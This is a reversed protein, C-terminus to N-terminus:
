RIIQGLRATQPRLGEDANRWMTAAVTASRLARAPNRGALLLAHLAYAQILFGLRGTNYRPDDTILSTAQRATGLASELSAIAHATDSMVLWVEAEAVVADATVQGPLAGRRARAVSTLQIRASDPKREALQREAVLTRGANALREVWASDPPVISRVIVNLQMYDRQQSLDSVASPLRGSIDDLRRWVDKPRCGAYVVGELGVIDALVDRPLQADESALSPASQRLLRETLACRGTMAAIPALLGAIQPTRPPTNALLSDASTAVRSLGAGSGSASLKFWMSLRSVALRLREAPDTALREAAQMTDLATPDGRLEMSIALAEKTGASRPFTNAWRTVVTDFITRLRMVVAPPSTNSVRQSTVDGRPWPVFVISDGAVAGIGWFTRSPDGLFSGPSWANGDIFLLRRLRGYGDQQFGRYTSPILQFSRRYSTIAEQLSARFRVGSPSRRDAVVIHDNRNCEGLGYWGVFNMSDARVLSRYTACAEPYQGHGLYALAYAMSREQSTLAATDRLAREASVIWRQAPFGRWSGQQAQWLYARSFRADLSLALEIESDARALSWEQRADAARIFAQTAFLHRPGLGGSPGGDSQGRLVMSDALTAYTTAIHSPEVPLEMQASYLSGDQVDRYEAFLAPGTPTQVSKVVIFRRAGLSTAIANMDDLTLRGARRRAFADLTRDIAVVHLGQWRRLATHFLEQPSGGNAVIAGTEAPFVVIQTSDTPLGTRGLWFRTVGYASVAALVVVGVAFKLLARRRDAHSTSREPGVSGPPEAVAAEFAKVFEGMNAYRDAPALSMAKEIVRELGRPVSPRYVNIARPAHRFRLAITSEQTPGHFPPLGALMEYVVCGFSYQDTRGDLHHDGSAQEPSMYAPTGRVIGSSTTSDGTSREMGRAIGFDSLYARDGSFLINEPKVDRHILGREHAHQLASGISRVVEVVADVSLQREKELRLRLSGGEMHPMVLYLDRDFQGSDLIPTVHPHRLAANLRFERLFRDAAVSEALERHLVKLAVPKSTESDTALYVTATGGRGLEREITYRNAFMGSPQTQSDM